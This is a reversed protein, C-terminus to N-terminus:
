GDYAIIVRGNRAFACSRIRTEVTFVAIEEGNITGEAATEMIETRCSAFGMLPSPARLGPWPEKRIAKM